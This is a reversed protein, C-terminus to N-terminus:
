LFAAVGHDACLEIFGGVDHHGSASGVIPEFGPREFDRPPVAHAIRLYGQSPTKGDYHM